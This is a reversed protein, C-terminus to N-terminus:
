CPDIGTTGRRPANRLNGFVDSAAIPMWGDNNLEHAHNCLMDSLNGAFPENDLRHWGETM